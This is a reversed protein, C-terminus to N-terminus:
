LDIDVDKIESLSGSMFHNDKEHRMAEVIRKAHDIDNPYITETWPSKEYDDFSLVLIYETM